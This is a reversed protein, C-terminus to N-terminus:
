DVRRIPETTPTSETPRAGTRQILRSRMSSEACRADQRCRPVSSLTLVVSLACNGPYIPLDWDPQFLNSGLKTTFAIDPRLPRPVVLIMAMMSQVGVVAGLLASGFSAPSRDQPGSARFTPNVAKSGRGIIGSAQGSVPGAVMSASSGPPSILRM